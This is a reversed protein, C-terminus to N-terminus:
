KKHVIYEESDIVVRCLIRPKSKLCNKRYYFLKSDNVVVREISKMTQLSEIFPKLSQGVFQESTIYLYRLNPVSTQIDAFFEQTLNDNNISLYRLRNCDKLCEVSGELTQPNYELDIVLRELSRFDSFAFFLRNSTDSSYTFSLVLERLKTCKNALLQLCKDTINGSLSRFSLSELSEFRSIHAFCTKLDSSSLDRTRSVSIDLEKLTKCFKTVFLYFNELHNARLSVNKIAELKKCSGSNNILSLNRNSDIDINKINPCMRLFDEIFKTSNTSHSRFTFEQLWMGHKTAFSLLCEEGCEADLIVLKTVRQCHETVLQLSVDNDSESLYVRSINPCKNLVSELIKTGFQNDFTKYVLLYQLSNKRDSDRYSNIHLETQKNFILRQWQKSLCEFWVKDRLWLYSLIDETLDDGFREMSDREYVHKCDNTVSMKLRFNESTNADTETM